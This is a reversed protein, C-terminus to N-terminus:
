MIDIDIGAGHRQRRDLRKNSHILAVRDSTQTTPEEHTQTTAQTMGELWNLSRYVQVNRDHTRRAMVAIGLMDRREHKLQRQRFVITLSGIQGQVLGGHIRRQHAEVRVQRVM